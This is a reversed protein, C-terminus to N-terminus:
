RVDRSSVLGADAFAQWHRPHPVQEGRRILSVYRLSLGTAAALRRLSVEQIAPLVERAFLDPDGREESRARHCEATISACRRPAASAPCCGSHYGEVTRKRVELASRM